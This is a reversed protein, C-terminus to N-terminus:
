RRAAKLATPCAQRAQRSALLWCAPKVFTEHQAAEVIRAAWDASMACGMCSAAAPAYLAAVVSQFATEIDRKRHPCLLSVEFQLQGVAALIPDTVYEDQSYLVQFCSIHSLSLLVCM